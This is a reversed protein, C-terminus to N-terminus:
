DDPYEDRINSVFMKSSSDWRKFYKGAMLMVHEAPETDLIEINEDAVYRVTKDDASCEVTLVSTTM